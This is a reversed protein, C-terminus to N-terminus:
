AEEEGAGNFKVDLVIPGQTKEHLSLRNQTAIAFDRAWRHELIWAAAKWDGKDKATWIAELLEVQGRHSAEQVRAAFDPKDKRWIYFTEETVGGYAASAKQTAGRELAHLIRGITEETYKM